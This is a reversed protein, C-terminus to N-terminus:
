IKAMKELIKLLAEKEKASLIEVRKRFNELKKQLSKELIKKGKITLFIKTVRRDKPDGLREVLGKKVLDDVLSTASPPTIYLYDAVDRMLVKGGGRIFRLAEIQLVSLGQINEPVAKRILRGLSFIATTIKESIISDTM